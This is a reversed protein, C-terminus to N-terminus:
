GTLYQRLRLKLYRKGWATKLHKKRQAADAEQYLRSFRCVLRLRLVEGRCQQQKVDDKGIDSRHQCKTM